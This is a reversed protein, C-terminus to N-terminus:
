SPLIPQNPHGARAQKPPTTRVRRRPLPTSAPFPNERPAASFASPQRHGLPHGVQSMPKTMPRTPLNNRRAGPPLRQVHIRRWGMRALKPQGGYRRGFQPLKIVGDGRDRLRLPEEPRHATAPEIHIPTLIRLTIRLVDRQPNRWFDLILPSQPLRSEQELHRRVRRRWRIIVPHGKEQPEHPTPAEGAQQVVHQNARLGNPLPKTMRFGQPHSLVDNTAAPKPASATQDLRTAASATQVQRSGKGQHGAM